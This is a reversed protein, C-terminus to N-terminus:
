FYKIKRQKMNDEQSSFVTQSFDKPREVHEKCGCKSKFKHSGGFLNNGTNSPCCTDAYVDKLRYLLM